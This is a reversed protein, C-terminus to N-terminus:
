TKAPTETLEDQREAEGDEARLIDIPAVQELTTKKRGIMTVGTPM